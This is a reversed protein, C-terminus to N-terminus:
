TKNERHERHDRHNTTNTERWPHSETLLRQLAQKREARAAALIQQADTRATITSHACGVKAAIRHDSFGLFALDHLQRFDFEFLKGQM